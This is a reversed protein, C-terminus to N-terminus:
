CAPYPWTSNFEDHRGAASHQTNTGAHRGEIRDGRQVLLPM